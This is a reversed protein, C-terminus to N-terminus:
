NWVSALEDASLRINCNTESETAILHTIDAQFSSRKLAPYKQLLKTVATTIETKDSQQVASQKLLVKLEDAFDHVVPFLPNQDAEQSKDPAPPTFLTGQNSLMNKKIAAKQLKINM